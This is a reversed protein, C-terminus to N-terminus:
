QSKNTLIRVPNRSVFAESFANFLRAVNLPPLFHNQSFVLEKSSLAIQIKDQNSGQGQDEMDCSEEVTFEIKQHPWVM